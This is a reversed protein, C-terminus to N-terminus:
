LIEVTTKTQNQSTVSIKMIICKIQKYYTRRPQVCYKKDKQFSKKKIM